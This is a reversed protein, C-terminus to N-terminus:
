WNNKKFNALKNSTILDKIKFRSLEFGPITSKRKGTVLCVNNKTSLKFKHRALKILNFRSYNKLNIKINNNQSISKLLKWFIERKKLNLIIIKEETINKINRNM